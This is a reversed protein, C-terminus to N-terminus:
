CSVCVEQILVEMVLPRLHIPMYIKRENDPIANMLFNSMEDTYNLMYEFTVGEPATANVRLMGRDELPALESPIAGTKFLAYIIGFLSVM